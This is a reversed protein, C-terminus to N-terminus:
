FWNYNFSISVREAAVPNPPVEHRLWSEFLVVNGAAAPIVFWPRSQPRATALRPPAAM